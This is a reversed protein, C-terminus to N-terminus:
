SNIFNKNLKTEILRKLLMLQQTNLEEFLNTIAKVIHVNHIQKTKPRFGGTQREREGNNFYSQLENLDKIQNMYDNKLIDIKGNKYLNESSKENREKSVIFQDIDNDKNKFSFDCEKSNQYHIKESDRIQVNDLKTLWPLTHITFARYNPDDSIPNEGLWLIRLEKCNKLYYLEELSSINNKRLYLETINKCNAFSKLTRIKNVSLSVVEVNILKTIIDIDEIECGWLNLNKVESLNNVKCKTLILEQTLKSM